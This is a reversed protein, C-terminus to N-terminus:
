VALGYALATSHIRESHRKPSQDDRPGQWRNRNDKGTERNHHGNERVRGPMEVALNHFRNSTLWMMKAGFRAASDRGLLGNSVCRRPLLRHQRSLPHLILVKSVFKSGQDLFWKQQM